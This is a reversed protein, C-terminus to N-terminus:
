PQSRAGSEYQLLAYERPPSVESWVGTQVVVFGAKEFTRMSAHNDIYARARVVQGFGSQIAGEALVRIAATALGRGQQEPDILVGIYLAHPDEAIRHLRVNGVHRNKCMVAFLLSDPEGQVETVWAMVTERSVKHDTLYVVNGRDHTSARQLWQIYDPSLHKALDFLRLDV